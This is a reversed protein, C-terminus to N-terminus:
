SPGIGCVLNTRLFANSNPNFGITTILLISLGSALGSSTISSTKSKNKSNPALSSCNSKGIIYADALAPYALYLTSSSFLSICGKNSVIIFCTSHGSPYM